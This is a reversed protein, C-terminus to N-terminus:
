GCALLQLTVRTLIARRESSTNIVPSPSNCVQFSGPKKNGLIRFVVVPLQTLDGLKGRNKPRGVGVGSGMLLLLESPSRPCGSTRLRWAWNRSDAQVVLLTM